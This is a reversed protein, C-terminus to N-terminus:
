EILEAPRAAADLRAYVRACCAGHVNFPVPSSFDHL